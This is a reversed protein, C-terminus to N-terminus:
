VADPAVECGSDGLWSLCTADEVNLALGVAAVFSGVATGAEGSVPTVDIVVLASVSVVLGGRAAVLVTRVARKAMSCSGDSGTSVTVTGGLAVDDDELTLAAACAKPVLGQLAM